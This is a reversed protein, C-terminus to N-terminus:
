RRCLGGGLARCRRSSSGFAPEPAIPPSFSADPARAPEVPPTGAREVTPAPANSIPVELVPDENTATSGSFGSEEVDATEELLPDTPSTEAAIEVPTPQRDAEAPPEQAISARGNSLFKSPFYLSLVIAAFAIGMMLPLSFRTRAPVATMSPLINEDRKVPMQRRVPETAMAAAPPQANAESRTNAERRNDEAPAEAMEPSERKAEDLRSCMRLMITEADAFMTVM